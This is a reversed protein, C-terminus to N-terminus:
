HIILSGITLLQHTIISDLTLWQTIVPSENYENAYEVLMNMAYEYEVNWGSVSAEISSLFVITNLHICPVIILCLWLEHRAVIFEGYLRM